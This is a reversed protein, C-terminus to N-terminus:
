KLSFSRQMAPSQKPKGALRASKPSAALGIKASGMALTDQRLKKSYNHVKLNERETDVAIFAVPQMNALAPLHTHGSKSQLGSKM